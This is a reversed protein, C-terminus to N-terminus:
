LNELINFLGPRDDITYDPLRNNGPDTGDRNIWVSKIGANLAGEVDREPNNGIMITENKEVGLQELSIRFIGPDPKAMGAEVSIVVSDFFSAIGSVNLKERQLDPIGNTVIGMRYDPYLNQLVEKVGPFLLHKKRRIVPYTEALEKALDSDEIGFAKLANTWADFRYKGALSRLQQIEEQPGDFQAWLAEWSSIAIKRAYAITPLQYWIERIKNRATEAFDQADIGYKQEVPLSTELFTEVVANEEVVLTDDLDFLIAKIM